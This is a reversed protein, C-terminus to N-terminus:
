SSKKNETNEIETNELTLSEQSKELYIYDIYTEVRIKDRDDLKRYKNIINIEEDELNKNNNKGYIIEDIDLNTMEKIKILTEISPNNNGNEIESLTGQSIGIKKSFEIQSMKISKRIKKIREGINKM